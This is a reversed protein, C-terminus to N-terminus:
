FVSLLSLFCIDFLTEVIAQMTEEGKKEIKNGRAVLWLQLRRDAHHDQHCISEWLILM